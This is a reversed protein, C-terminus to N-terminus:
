LHLVELAFQHLMQEFVSRMARWDGTLAQQSAREYPRGPRARVAVFPPLGYRMAIWNAWLRATRGNGNAFPHIRIWEGHAFAMLGIVSLVAERDPHPREKASQESLIEQDFTTVGETLTEMFQQLQAAVDEPGPAVTEGIRIGVREQGVEGRFTGFWSPSVGAPPTLGAMIRRHWERPLDLSAASAQRASNRAARLADIINNRLQQSDRDWDPM